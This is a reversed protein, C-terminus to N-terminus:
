RSAWGTDPGDTLYAGRGDTAWACAGHIRVYAVLSATAPIVQLYNVWRGARIAVLQSDPAGALAARTIRRLEEISATEDTEDTEDAAHPESVSWRAGDQIASRRTWGAGWLNGDNDAIIYGNTSKM